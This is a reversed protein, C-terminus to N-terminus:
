KSFDDSVESFWICITVSNISLLTFFIMLWVNLKLSFTDFIGSYIPATPNFTSRNIILLIIHSSGQQALIWCQWTKERPVGWHPNTIQEQSNGISLHM